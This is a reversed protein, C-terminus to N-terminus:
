AAIGRRSEVSALLRYFAKTADAPADAHLMITAHNEGGWMQGHLDLQQSRSLQHWGRPASSGFMVGRPAHAAEPGVVFGALELANLAERMADERDVNEFKALPHAM